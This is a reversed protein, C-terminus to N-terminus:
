MGLELYGWSQEALIASVPSWSYISDDGDQYTGPLSHALMLGTQVAREFRVLDGSSGYVRILYSQIFARLLRSGELAADRAEELYFVAEQMNGQRELEKGISKLALARLSPEAEHEVLRFIEQYIQMTEPYRKQELLATAKLRLYQVDLALFRKELQLPPPL